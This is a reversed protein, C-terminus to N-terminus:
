WRVYHPTTALLTDNLAGLQRKFKSAITSTSQTRGGGGGGGGAAGGGAAGAAGSGGFGHEPAQKKIAVAAPSAMGASPTSAESDDSSIGTAADSAATDNHAADGLLAENFLDQLM